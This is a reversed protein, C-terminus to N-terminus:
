YYREDIKGSKWSHCVGVRPRFGAYYHTVFMFLSRGCCFIGLNILPRLDIELANVGENWVMKVIM